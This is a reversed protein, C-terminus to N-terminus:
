LASEMGGLVGHLAKYRVSVTEGSETIARVRWAIGM